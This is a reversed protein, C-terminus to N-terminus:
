RDFPRSVGGSFNEGPIATVKGPLRIPCTSHRVPSSRNKKGKQAARCFGGVGGPDLDHFDLCGYVM